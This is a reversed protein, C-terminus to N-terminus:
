SWNYNMTLTPTSRNAKETKYCNFEEESVISLNLDVEREANRNSSTIQWKNNRPQDKRKLWEESREHNIPQPTRRRAYICPNGGCNETDMTKSCSPLGAKNQRTNIRKTPAAITEQFPLPNSILKRHVIKNKSVTHETGSMATQIENKFNIDLLWKKYNEEYFKFPYKFNEM